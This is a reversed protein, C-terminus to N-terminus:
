KLAPLVVGRCEGFGIRRAGEKQCYGRLIVEDGDLLFKRTEGSPLELPEAGRSTLELLCGRNEKQPGSVTGSGLLDGPRLNCGNSCHHTIMQAPTWYLDRLRSHSLRHPEANAARMKETRLYVELEVGFAGRERDNRGDLYPLPPPDGEPRALAPTRFPALAEHTVIWPSISTLFSKSLFPGLPQYEWGQVDRASWDNLLCLGFIRGESEELPTPWGLENAPGVFIGVELEYDLLNSPGFSPAPADPAKTQGRPRRVPHGSLVVSSARGHYGIPIYKYNPLLPQDPRLLRGVNLAHDISAYFDSYDGIEVPMLLDVEALPLLRLAKRDERSERLLRSLAHRLASWFRPEMAMLPNLTPGACARAAERADDGQAEFAGAELSAYLDIVQDGIAVGVRESEDDPSLFAGFPLNQIPFDAGPENASAVWSRLAPDHTENLHSM